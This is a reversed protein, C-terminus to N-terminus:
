ANAWVRIDQVKTGGAFKESGALFKLYSLLFFLSNTDLGTVRDSYRSKFREVKTSLSNVLNEGISVEM